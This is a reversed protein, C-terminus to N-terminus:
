FLYPHDSGDLDLLSGTHKRFPPHSIALQNGTTVIPPSSDLMADPVDVTPPLPDLTADPVDVTPPSPDNVPTSIFLPFESADTPDPTSPRDESVTVMSTYFTTGDECAEQEKDLPTVMSRANSDVEGENEEFEDESVGWVSFSDGDDAFQKVVFSLNMKEAM